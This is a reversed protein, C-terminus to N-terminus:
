ERGPINEPGWFAESLNYAKDIYNTSSEAVIMKLGSYLVEEPMKFVGVKEEIEM